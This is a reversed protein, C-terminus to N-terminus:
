NLIEYHQKAHTQAHFYAQLPHNSKRTILEASSCCVSWGKTPGM